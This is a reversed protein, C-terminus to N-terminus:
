RTSFDPDPDLGEDAGSEIYHRIPDVKPRTLLEPAQLLYHLVDFNDHLLDYDPDAGLQMRMRRRARFVAGDMMPGFNTPERVLDPLHGAPALTPSEVAPAAEALRPVPRVRM